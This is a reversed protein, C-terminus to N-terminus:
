TRIVKVEGNTNDFVMQQVTIQMQIDPDKLIEFCDARSVLEKTRLLEQAREYRSCSTERLINEALGNELQKYDNTVIIFNEGSQRTAHRKPTREVVVHEGPNVGSLLLLCDSAIITEELLKKADPYSKAVTLVDRLLFTVPYALEPKDVSTVANLTISFRGPKTGSLAGIFGPWSVTKFVTQGGRQFDFIMSHRSLLNDDTPWDLNRSHLMTQGNHTAFATCGFFFKLVDYYLNGVLVENENFACVDAVARLEEQYEHPVILEKYQTVAEYFVDNGYANQLYCHFLENIENTYAKLFQWRERPPLDLNVIHQPIDM